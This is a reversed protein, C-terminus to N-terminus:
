HVYNTGLLVGWNCAARDLSSANATRGATRERWRQQVLGRGEDFWCFSLLEQWLHLPRKGNGAQGFTKQEQRGQGLYRRRRSQMFHLRCQNFHLRPFAERDCRCIYGAGAEGMGTSISAGGVGGGTGAIEGEETGATEVPLLPVKAGKVAAAFLLLVKALAMSAALM